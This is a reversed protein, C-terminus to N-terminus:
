FLPVRVTAVNSVTVEGPTSVFLPVILAMM